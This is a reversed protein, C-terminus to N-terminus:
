TGRQGGGGAAHCVSIRGRVPCCGLEATIADLQVVDSSVSLEAFHFQGFGPIDVIHGQSRCGGPVQLSDVVSALAYGGGSAPLASTMRRHQRTLWRHADESGDKLTLDCKHGALRLGEFATGTTSVGISGRDDPITILLQTVIRDARVVELINLDEVVATILIASGGDECEQSMIRAYASSCSVIEDLTFRESQAFAFGDKAPLSVPVLAPVAKDIPAKLFGGLAAASGQLPDIKRPDPSNM